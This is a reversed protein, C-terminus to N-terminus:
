PRDPGASSRRSSGKTIASECINLPRCSSGEHRTVDINWKGWAGMARRLAFMRGEWPEHFVPENAEAQIPGMGQMGGMDHVGNM